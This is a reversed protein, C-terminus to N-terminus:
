MTRSKAMSSLDETGGRSSAEEDIACWWWWWWVAAEDAKEEGEGESSFAASREARVVAEGDGEDEGEVGEASLVMMAM